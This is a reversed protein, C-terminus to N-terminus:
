LLVRIVTTDPLVSRRVIGFVVLATTAQLAPVASPSARLVLRTSKPTLATPVRSLLRPVLQATILRLVTRQRVQAMLITVSPAQHANLVPQLVQFLPTRAVLASLPWAM